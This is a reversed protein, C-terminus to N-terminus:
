QLERTITLITSTSIATTTMKGRPLSPAPCLYTCGAPAVTPSIEVRCSDWLNATIFSNLVTAGGEVLLSSIGRDYLDTMVSQLDHPDIGNSPYVITEDRKLLGADPKLNANGLIVPRPGTGAFHRLTLSPNDLAVTGAGVLIADHSARLKHAAVLSQPTSISLASNDLSKRADIYGDATQAWKLTIWPRHERHCTFFRKNIEKCETELMGVIVEVGAERMMKIGRGNVRAFPDLCGVVVRPIGTEIILRSCAPTRGQHSCPELTVYMTAQQLLHRNAPDVSEIANPEAHNEGCRRHFGEGIIRGSPDVIVAGVMPNPSAHFMGGRAIQLARRMYRPDINSM